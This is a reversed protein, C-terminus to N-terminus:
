EDAGPEFSLGGAHIGAKMSSGVPRVQDHSRDHCAHSDDDRQEGRPAVALLEPKDPPERLVRLQRVDM